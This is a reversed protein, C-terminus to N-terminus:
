VAGSHQPRMAGDIFVFGPHQPIAYGCKILIPRGRVSKHLDCHIFLENSGRPVAKGVLNSLALPERQFFAANGLGYLQIAPGRNKAGVRNLGIGHVGVDVRKFLARTLVPCRQVQHTRKIMTAGVAGHQKLFSISQYHVIPALFFDSDLSARKLRKMEAHAGIGIIVIHTRVLMRRVVRPDGVVAIVYKKLGVAGPVHLGIVFEGFVFFTLVIKLRRQRVADFQPM